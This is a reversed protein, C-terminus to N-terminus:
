RKTLTITTTVYQETALLRYGVPPDVSYDTGNASVLGKCIVTYTGAPILGNDVADQLDTANVTYEGADDANFQISTIGPRAPVDYAGGTGKREQVGWVSRNSSDYVEIVLDFFVNDIACAQSIEISPYGFSGYFEAGNSGAYFRCGASGNISYTYQTIDIWQEVPQYVFNDITDAIFGTETRIGADDWMNLSILRQMDNVGISAPDPQMDGNVDVEEMPPALCLVAVNFPYAEAEESIMSQQMAYTVPITLTHEGRALSRVPASQKVWIQPGWESGEHSGWILTVCWDGFDPYPPDVLYSDNPHRFINMPMGGEEYDSQNWIKFVGYIYGKGNGNHQGGMPVKPNNPNSTYVRAETIWPLARTHYGDFDALRLWDTGPVPPAWQGWPPSIVGTHVSIDMPVPKMGWNKSKADADTYGAPSGFAYPKRRAYRNIKGHTGACAYGVDYGNSRPALGLVKYVDSRIDIGKGGSTYIEIGNNPM